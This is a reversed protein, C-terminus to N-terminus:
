IWLAMHYADCGGWDCQLRVKLFAVAEEEEAFRVGYNVEAGVSKRPPPPEVRREDRGHAFAWLDAGAKPGLRRCLAEKSAARVQQVTTVGLEAELRAAMSWGVGPLDAVGLGAIFDAADAATVRLQGRPKARATALRAVLPNPGIGASAPCGTAAEIDARLARALAEPDGLGTVDLYAEDCSLPQVAASARMLIRYVQTTITNNNSPASPNTTSKHDCCTARMTWQEIGEGVLLGSM